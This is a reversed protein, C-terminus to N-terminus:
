FGSGDREQPTELDGLVGLEEAIDDGLGVFRKLEQSPFVLKYTKVEPDRGRTDGPHSTVSPDGLILDDDDDDSDDPEDEDSEDATAAFEVAESPSLSGQVVAKATEVDDFTLDGYEETQLTIKVSTTHDTVYDGGYRAGLVAAEDGTLTRNTSQSGPDHQRETSYQVTLNAVDVFDSVNEIFLKPPRCIYLKRAGGGFGMMASSTRGPPDDGPITQPLLLEGFSVNWVASGSRYPRLQMLYDVVAQTAITADAPVDGDAPALYPPHPRPGMQKLKSVADLAKQRADNVASLANRHAPDAGGYNSM